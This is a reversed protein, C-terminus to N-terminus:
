VVNRLRDARDERRLGVHGQIGLLEGRGPGAPDRSFPRARRGNRLDDQQARAPAFGPLEPITEHDEALYERRTRGFRVPAAALLAAIDNENTNEHRAPLKHPNPNETPPEKGPPAAADGPASFGSRGFIIFFRRFFFRVGRFADSFEPLIKATHDENRTASPKRAAHYSPIFSAYLGM